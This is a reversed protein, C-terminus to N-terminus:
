SPRWCGMQDGTSATRGRRPGRDARRPLHERRGAGDWGARRARARGRGRPLDGPRRGPRDRVRASGLLPRASLKLLIRRYRARRRAPPVREPEGAGWRRAEPAWPSAPSACSRSRSAAPRKGGRRDAVKKSDDKIFPQEMLCAEEYYKGIKGDVIKEIVAAPKGSEKLQERAIEREKELTRRTWKRAACSPRRPPRSRCRLTTSRRGRPRGAHTTAGSRSCCASGTGPTSTLRAGRGAPGRLFAFGRSSCTRESSPSRRRSSRRCPRCQRRQLGPSADARRDSSRASPGAQLLAAVFSTFDDTRAV